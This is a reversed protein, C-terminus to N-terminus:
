NDPKGALASSVSDYQRAQQAMRGLYRHIADDDCRSHMLVQDKLSLLQSHLARVDDELGSRRRSVQQFQIQLQDTARKKKERSKTAAVRNRELNKAHKKTDENQWRPPSPSKNSSIDSHPSIRDNNLSLETDHDATGSVSSM